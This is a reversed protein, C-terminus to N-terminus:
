DHYKSLLLDKLKDMRSSNDKSWPIANPNKSSLCWKCFHDIVDENNRKYKKQDKSYYGSRYSKQFDVFMKEVCKRYEGLELCQGIAFRAKDDDIINTRFLDNQSFDHRNEKQRKVKPKKYDLCLEKQLYPFIGKKLDKDEREDVIKMFFTKGNNANLKAKEILLRDEDSMKKVIRPHAAMIADVKMAFLDDSSDKVVINNSISSRSLSKHPLNLEIEGCLEKGHMLKFVDKYLKMFTSRDMTSSIVTRPIQVYGLTAGWLSLAYQYNSVSNSELYNILSDYDEGKLIFAALSQLIINDVEQVNFPTFDKINQRLHHFYLQEPSGKWEKGAEEIIRSMIMTIKTAIEFRNIRLDDLDKVVNDWVINSLIKNFFSSINDDLSMMALSYDPNIDLHSCLDVNQKNKERELNILAKTYLSIDECYKDLNGFSYESLMKRLIIGEQQCFKRKFEAEMHYEHLFRNLNEASLGYDTVRNIWLDRSQIVNPDIQTYKKDLSFLEENLAVSSEGGNSKISALIDYIRKQITLIKATNTSLSKTLGIFYGCIFGKVRNYQNDNDTTATSQIQLTDISSILNNLKHKSPRVTLLQFYDVLKCMKSDLCNQYALVRAKDTFFLFKTNVPTIRITQPSYYIKSELSKNVSKVEVFQQETDIQIIMPYNERQEDEIDFDPLESFLLINDTFDNLQPIQYFNRYGFSRTKYFSVPSISETSLINEINLSSTTIYYNMIM